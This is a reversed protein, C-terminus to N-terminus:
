RLQWLSRSDVFDRHAIICDRRVCKSVQDTDVDALRAIQMSADHVLMTYFAAHQKLQAGQRDRMPHVDPESPRLRPSCSVEMM